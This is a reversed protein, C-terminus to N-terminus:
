KKKRFIAMDYNGNGSAKAITMESWGPRTGDWLGLEKLAEVVHAGGSCHPQYDGQQEPSVDHFMVVGGPPVFPDLCLFDAMACPKGHCGDILAL